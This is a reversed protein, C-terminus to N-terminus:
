WRLQGRERELSTFGEKSEMLSSESSHEGVFAELTNWERKKKKKYNRQKNINQKNIKRIKKLLQFIFNFIELM